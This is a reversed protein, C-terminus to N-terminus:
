LYLSIDCGRRNATVQHGKAVLDKVLESAVRGTAGVVFIKM